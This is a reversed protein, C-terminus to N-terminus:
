VPRSSARLDAWYADVQASGPPAVPVDCGPDITIQDEHTIRGSITDGEQFDQGSRSARLAWALRNTDDEELPCAEVLEWPTEHGSVLGSLQAHELLLSLADDFPDM